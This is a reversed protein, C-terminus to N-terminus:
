GGIALLILRYLSWFPFVLPALCTLVAKDGKHYNRDYNDMRRLDSRAVVIMIAYSAFLYLAVAAILLHAPSFEITFNM